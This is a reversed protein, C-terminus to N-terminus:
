RPGGIPEDEDLRMHVTARHALAAISASGYTVDRRQGVRRMGCRCAADGPVLPSM